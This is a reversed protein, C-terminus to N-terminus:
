LDWKQTRLLWWMTFLGLSFLFLSGMLLMAYQVIGFKYLLFGAGCLYFLSLLGAQTLAQQSAQRSKRRLNCELRLQNRILKVSEILKYKENALDCLERFIKQKIPSKVQSLEHNSALVELASSWLHKQWGNRYAISKQLAAKISCGVQLSLIIEELLELYLSPLAAEIRHEIFFSFFKLLFLFSGFILVLIISKFKCIFAVVSTLAFFVVTWQIWLSQQESTLGFYKFNGVFENRILLFGFIAILIEIIM